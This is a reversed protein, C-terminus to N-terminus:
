DTENPELNNCIRQVVVLKTSAVIHGQEFHVVIQWLVTDESECRGDVKQVVIALQNFRTLIFRFRKHLCDGDLGHGVTSLRIQAGFLLQDLASTAIPLPNAAPFSAGNQHTGGNLTWISRVEQAAQGRPSVNQARCSRVNEGLDILLRQVLPDVFSIM